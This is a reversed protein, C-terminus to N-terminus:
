TTDSPVGVLAPATSDIVTITQTETTTNGGDDTVSWERIITGVGDAVTNSTESYNVSLTTDCNDTATVSPPAPVADCQVTADSPVGVLAPATSDIVTITQTETTTNGGDDTVSWERVITGVGDAVTNSTETYNVSLTTDCNDTATVTAPAPIADCQVTTDSPVGVLAPATSDIVTITQTETTTNGGDDTVSWERIITGVGDAVTNSTESYNVSLTTDCNDTATVTAPAPIADCQVTTDGPVGVLAPATSDIVSITQTETTTNGGDDTVSWERVITGVGDAVTNSTETYNVSLTTDCNDTATVAPPAPIADCQVTTDGPVGVLAPATSDIVTITQTETTTNGGDDTVSWERVITGVGDAVTNSTETYNVSLTTDCNDTATVSPPAPVADCQVTADSPVGVLAPATSDIVTITQTETTTNGCSDTVSWERVIAGVGDAVTNSTETYNVSLTTDCNDTATVSPPAPVADCQVTTDSPVGVLTPATSDNITIIQTVTSTASDCISTYTWTRTITGGCATGNLASDTGTVTGSTSNCDDNWTLDVMAPIDGICEVTVDSPVSSFNINRFNSYNNQVSEYNFSVYNEISLNSDLTPLSEDHRHSKSLIRSYGFVNIVLFTGLLLYLTIKRM